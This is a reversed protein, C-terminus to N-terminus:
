IVAQRNSYNPLHESNPKYIGTKLLCRTLKTASAFLFCVGTNSAKCNKPQALENQMDGRGGELNLSRYPRATSSGLSECGGVAAAAADAADPPPLPLTTSQVLRARGCGCSSGQHPNPRPCPAPPPGM